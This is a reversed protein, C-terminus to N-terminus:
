QISRFPTAVEGALVGLSRSELVRAAGAATRALMRLYYGTMPLPACSPQRPPDRAAQTLKKVLLAADLQKLSPAASLEALSAPFSKGTQARYADLCRRWTRIDYAMRRVIRQMPRREGAHCALGCLVHEADVLPLTLPAFSYSAPAQLVMVADDREIAGARYAEYIAGIGEMGAEALEAARIAGISAAGLVRVGRAMLDIIEKHWVTPAIGFSGDILGVAAPPDAALAALDGCIAPPRLEVSDPLSLGAISPGAFLIARGFEPSAPKVQCPARGRAAESTARRRGLNLLGPALAHVVHLGPVPPCHDYVAVPLRTLRAITDSLLELGETTSPCDRTPVAAWALSGDGLALTEMALGLARDRGDTYDAFVMDDRAGAVLAARSQAAERVATLAAIIANPHCAKGGAPPMGDLMPEPPFLACFIAAIGHAQGLSWLRPTFGAASVRRLECALRANTLSAADIQLARRDRPSLVQFEAMLHHELLEGLAAHVAEDRTNGTALGASSAAYELPRCTFDLSLLDWPMPMPEGSGLLHGGVWGRALGPDLDITLPPREGSWFRQVPRPLRDLPVERPPRPLAEACAFEAAELLAAIKAALRSGGKGLSVSLSRSFPRVAQFVPSGLGALETIDALRTVGAHAGAAWALPWTEGLGRARIWNM